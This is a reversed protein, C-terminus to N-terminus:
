LSSRSVYRGKRDQGTQGDEVKKGDLRETDADDLVADANRIRFERVVECPQFLGIENFSFLMAVPDDVPESVFSLLESM